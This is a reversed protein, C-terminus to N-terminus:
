DFTLHTGSEEGLGYRWCLANGRGLHARWARPDRKGTRAQVYRRVAARSWRTVRGMGFGIGAHDCSQFVKWLARIGRLTVEHSEGKLM